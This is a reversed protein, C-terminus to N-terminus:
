TGPNQVSQLYDGVKVELAYIEMPEFKKQDPATLPPMKGETLPETSARLLRTNTDLDSLTETSSALNLKIHRRNPPTSPYRVRPFNSPPTTPHQSRTHKQSPDEPPNSSYSPHEGSTSTQTSTTASQNSSSQVLQERIVARYHVLEDPNFASHALPHYETTSEPPHYPGSPDDVGQDALNFNEYWRTRHVPRRSIRSQAPPPTVLDQAHVNLATTQAPPPSAFRQARAVDNLHKIIWHFHAPGTVDESHDGELHSELRIITSSQSHFATSPDGNSILNSLPPMNHIM